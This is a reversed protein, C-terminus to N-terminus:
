KAREVLLANALEYANKALAKYGGDFENPDGFSTLAQGAFWDRLTMGFCGHMGEGEGAKAVLDALEAKGDIDEPIETM